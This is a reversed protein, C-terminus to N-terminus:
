IQLLTKDRDLRLNQLIINEVCFIKPVNYPSTGKSILPERSESSNLFLNFKGMLPSLTLM